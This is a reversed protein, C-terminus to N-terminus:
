NRSLKLPLPPAQMPKCRRARGTPPCNWCQDLVPPNAGLHEKWYNLQKELVEGQLYEKQWEAYDAYQLPLEPLPSPQNRSYAAYLASIEGILVGMSWGDSIIHHLTLLVVHDEPGAKLVTIRTLPGKKLDFPKRAEEVAKQRIEEERDKVDLHELDILPVDIKYEPYIIQVTEGDVMSFLTRLSEHRAVIEDVARKFVDLRFPGKLRFASPINYYPSNPEFQDLFWLRKQGFSAPFVYVEQEISESTAKNTSESGTLVTEKM